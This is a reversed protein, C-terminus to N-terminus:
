RIIKFFLPIHKLNSDVHLNDFLWRQALFDPEQAKDWCTALGM